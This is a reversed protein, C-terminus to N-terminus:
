QPTRTHIHRTILLVILDKNTAWMKRQSLWHPLRILWIAALIYCIWTQTDTYTLIQVSCHIQISTFLMSLHYIQEQQCILTRPGSGNQRIWIREKEIFSGCKTYEVFDTKNLKTRVGIWFVATLAKICEVTFFLNKPKGDGASGPHWYVFEGQGPIILNNRALSLKTISMWPPSPFSALRKKCHVRRGTRHKLKKFYWRGLNFLLCLVISVFCRFALVTIDVRTRPKRYM